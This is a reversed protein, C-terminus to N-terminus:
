FIIEGKIRRRRQKKLKEASELGIPFSPQRRQIDEFIKFKLNKSCKGCIKISKKVSSKKKRINRTRSRDREREIKTLQVKMDNKLEFIKKLIKEEQSKWKKMEKKLKKKLKREVGDVGRDKKSYDAHELFNSFKRIKEQAVSIHGEISSTEGLDSRFQGYDM